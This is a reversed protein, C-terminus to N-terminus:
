LGQDQDNLDEELQHRVSGLETTQTPYRPLVPTKMEIVKITKDPQVKSKLQIVLTTKTLQHTGLSWPTAAAMADTPDSVTLGM